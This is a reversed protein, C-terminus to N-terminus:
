VWPCKDSIWLAELYDRERKTDMCQWFKDHFFARLKGQHAIEELPEREFMTQDDSIYNLFEPEMVFFGGNIWGVGLQAKEAFKTVLTGDFTIEGFRAPPRVATMTVLADTEKHFKVVESVNLSALGDGYTVCFTENGIQKALRKLRGGTMTDAGTDILEVSWDPSSSNSYDISGDSLNVKFDSHKGHFNLFYEKVVEAKYGLAIIFDNIDSKSYIKMIHLLIPMGGITVMPKPIVDTYEALRTGFGGALIVVRLKIEAKDDINFKGTTLFKLVIM